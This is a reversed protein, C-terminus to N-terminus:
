KGGEGVGLDLGNQEAVVRFFEGEWILVRSGIKVFAKNFGNTAANFRMWRLGGDTAWEHRTRFQKFTLLTPIEAM